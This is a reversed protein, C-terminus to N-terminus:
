SESITVSLIRQTVKPPVGSNASNGESNITNVVDM